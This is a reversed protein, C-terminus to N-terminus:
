QENNMTEPIKPLTFIFRSGKGTESEAWIKGGHATLISKCIALGLGVGGYRRTSSGDAQYFRDFIKELKDAPVGIGMDQVEIRTFSREDRLRLTITGGPKSFKIANNVLNDLVQSLRQEDAAVQVDHSPMDTTLTQQAEQASFQAAQLTQTLLTNLSVAQLNLGAIELKQLTVIDNVIKNLLMCKRHVVDMAKQQDDTMQGFDNSMLLEIYGLIFTLPARLEHSVNQVMESKLHDAEKLEAYAKELELAHVRLDRVLRANEITVAASQALTEVVTLDEEDFKGEIKNILELVGIVRRAILLPVAIVNLTTLGTTQDIGRYFRPDKRVDDVRVSKSNQSVWGILGHGAPVKVNVLKESSPGVVAKFVLASTEDLLAISGANAGLVRVAEELITQPVSDFELSSAMIRAANNIASLQKTRRMLESERVKQESLDTIVIVDGFDSRAAPVRVGLVSLETGNKRRLRKELSTTGATKTLWVDASTKDGQHILDAFPCGILEAADYGTMRCLRQNVFSIVGTHDLMVLGDGMTNILMQHFTNDRQIEKERQELRRVLRVNEIAMAAQIAISTLLRTDPPNVHADGRRAVLMVGLTKGRLSLPLISVVQAEISDLGRVLLEGGPMELLVQPLQEILPRDNLVVDCLPSIQKSLPFTVEGPVGKVSRLFNHPAIDGTAGAVAASRLMGREEDTILIWAMVAGLTMVAGNAIETLLDRIPQDSRSRRLVSKIRAVLSVPDVPKAIYDDAGALLGDAHNGPEALATLLLIPLDAYSKNARLRRCVEVGDMEPMMVDLLMVDPRSASVQQLAEAGSIATTVEYGQARVIHSMLQLTQPDDDVVLVKIAM